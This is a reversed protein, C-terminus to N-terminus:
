LLLAATIGLDQIMAGVQRMQQRTGNWSWTSFVHWCLLDYNTVTFQRKYARPKIYLKTFLKSHALLHLLKYRPPPTPPNCGSNLFFTQLHAVATNILSFILPEVFQSQEM